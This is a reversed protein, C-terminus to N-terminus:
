VQYDLEQAKATSDGSHQVIQARSPRNIGFRLQCRRKMHIRFNLREFMNRRRLRHHDPLGREGSFRSLNPVPCVNSQLPRQPCSRAPDQHVCAFSARVTNTQKSNTHVCDHSFDKWTYGTFICCAAARQHKCDLQARTRM